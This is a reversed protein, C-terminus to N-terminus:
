NSLKTIMTANDYKIYGDYEIENILEITEKYTIIYGCRRLELNLMHLNLSGLAALAVLITDKIEPKETIKM